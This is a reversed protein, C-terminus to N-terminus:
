ESAPAPAPAPPAPTASAPAPATATAPTSTAAPTDVAHKDRPKRDKTANKKKNRNHSSSPDSTEAINSDPKEPKKDRRHRASKHSKDDASRTGDTQREKDRDSDSKHLVEQQQKNSDAQELEPTIDGKIVNGYRQLGALMAREDKFEVYAFPRQRRPLDAEDRGSSTTRRHPKDFVLKIGTIGAAAAGFYARLEDESVPLAEKLQSVYLTYANRVKRASSVPSRRGDTGSTM